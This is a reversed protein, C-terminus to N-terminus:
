RRGIYHLDYADALANLARRLPAWAAYIGRPYARRALLNDIDGAERLVLEVQGRTEWWTDTRDFNGRLDDLRRELDDVQDNLRDEANTDDLYSHDLRNDVHDRFQDSYTETNRILANVAHRHYRPYFRAMAPTNCALVLGVILLTTITQKM